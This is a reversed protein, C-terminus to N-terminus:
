ATVGQRESLWTEVDTNRWRQIRKGIRVPAPFEGREVLRALTWRSIGLATQVDQARMVFADM